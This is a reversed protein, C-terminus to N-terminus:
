NISLDDMLNMNIPLCDCKTHNKLNMIEIIPELRRKRAFRSNIKLSQSFFAVEITESEIPQCSHTKHQCCGSIDNCRYLVTGRPILTKSPDSNPYIIQPKPVQCSGYKEMNLLHQTAKKTLEKVPSDSRGRSCNSIFVNIILILSIISIFHRQFYYKNSRFFSKM